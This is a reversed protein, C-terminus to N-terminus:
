TEDSPGCLLRATPHLHTMDSSGIIGVAILCCSKAAAPSLCYAIWGRSCSLATRWLENRWKPRLLQPCVAVLDLELVMYRFM